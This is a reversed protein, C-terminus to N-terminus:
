MESLSIVNGRVRQLVRIEAGQPGHILTNIDNLVQTNFVAATARAQGNEVLNASVLGYGRGQSDFLLSGSQGEVGNCGLLYVPMFRADGDTFREIPCQAGWLSGWPKDRPFGATELLQGAAHEPLLTAAAALAPKTLKLLAIDSGSYHQIDGRLRAESGFDRHWWAEEIDLDEKAGTENNFPRYILRELQATGREAPALLCHAATILWQAGILSATCQSDYHGGEELRYYALLQGVQFQRQRWLRHRHNEMLGARLMMIQENEGPLSALQALASLVKDRHLGGLASERRLAEGAINRDMSPDLGALVYLPRLLRLEPAWHQDRQALQAYMWSHALDARTHSGGWFYLQALDTAISSCRKARDSEGLLAKEAEASILLQEDLLHPYRAEPCSTVTAAAIQSFAMGGSLM